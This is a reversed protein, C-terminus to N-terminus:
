DFILLGWRDTRKWNEASGSWIYQFNRADGSESLNLGIDFGWRSPRKGGTTPVAAWPVRIECSFGPGNTSPSGEEFSFNILEEKIFEQGRDVNIHRNDSTQSDQAFSLKIDGPQYDINTWDATDPETRLFLEVSDMQYQYPGLRSQSWTRGAKAVDVTITLAQDDWKVQFSAPRDVWHDPSRHGVVIQSPSDFSVIEESKRILSFSLNVDRSIGVDTRLAGAFTMRGSAPLKARAVVMSEGPPLDFTQTQEDRLTWRLKHTEETTNSVLLDFADQTNRLSPSLEGKEQWSAQKFASDINADSKQWLFWTPLSSVLIGSQAQIPRGAADWIAAPTAESSFTLESHGRSGETLSWLAVIKENNPCEFLLARVGPHIDIERLFTAKEILRLTTGVVLYAPSPTGDYEYLPSWDWPQWGFVPQSTAYSFYKSAGVRRTEIMFRAIWGAGDVSPIAKTTDAMSAHSRLAAVTPQGVETQWVPKGAVHKKALEVVQDLMVAGEQDPFRTYPHFSLVDFHEGAGKELAKRLFASYDAGHDSTSCIGVVNASPNSARTERAASELLPLYAEVSMQGNPENIVEWDQIIGKYGEVATRVYKEWVSLDDPILTSMWAGGTTSHAPFWPEGYPRVKWEVELLGLIAFGANKWRSLEDRYLVTENATPQVAYLKTPNPRGSHLRLWRVGLHHLRKLREDEQPQLNTYASSGDAKKTWSQQSHVGFWGERPNASIEPLGEFGVQAVLIEQTAAPTAAKSVGPPRLIVRYLGQGPSLTHSARWIGSVDPDVEWRVPDHSVIRESPIIDSVEWMWGEPPTPLADKSQLAARVTVPQAQPFFNGYIGTDLGVSWKPAIWPVEVDEGEVLTLADIFVPNESQPPNANTIFLVLNSTDKQAAPITVQYRKWEPSLRLLTNKLPGKGAVGWHIAVASGEFDGRALFSLSHPVNPTVSIPFSNVGFAPDIRLSRRGEGPNNTEWQHPALTPPWHPLIYTQWGAGSHEFDTSLAALLNSNEEAMAQSFAVFVLSSLSISLALSRFTHLVPSSNLTPIRMQSLFTM